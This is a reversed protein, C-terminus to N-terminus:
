SYQNLTVIIWNLANVPKYFGAVDLTSPDGQDQTVLIGKFDSILQLNKLSQFYGKLVNNIQPILSPLNKQGIFQDLNNRIGQQVFHKVEVIRPDRTFSNSLDTTLYMRIKISTSLDQLVTCGANAVLAATVDDLRRYLRDFGVIKKNTLPTAIDYVPDVDLGAAAVAIFSGDVLYQVDNGFADPITLLAAEPYVATIKESGLAQCQQIASEPTTGFAFGVISTRENRFRISSQTANSTALYAQVQSNTTMVQMLSPRTGDPMPENFIDIADLYSQVPADAGGTARQVQQLVVSTAGNLFAFNAGLVIKNTIDLPGFDTYVDRMNTYSKATYDTKAQDFTVYYSDGVNPENGDQKFTQLTVTDGTNDAAGGSTTDITLNVGPIAKVITSVAYIWTQTNTPDTPVGVHYIVTKGTTPTFGGSVAQFAVSFGTVSDTYTQGQYGKNTPGTGTKGSGTVTFGGVGDFTVTVTEVSSTFPSTYVNVAGSGAYVPAITGGFLTVALATGSFNSTLTYRGVTAVGPLQDTITWTDDIINNEYYTVYVNDHSGVVGVAPAVELIISTGQIQDVIVPGATYAAIWTTGVYAAIKAPDETQTGTGTGDVPLSPLTYTKNGTGNLPLGDTGYITNGNVDQDVVVPTAVAGFIQTDTLSAVVNNILPTSGATYIGTNLALSTGWHVENPAALIVDQGISYDSTDAGLGVKVIDNVQAAPLIDFTDQWINTFYSVTVTADLAPATGLTFIGEAGDLATIATIVSNVKVQIVPVTKTYENGPVSPTPNYLIVVNNGIDANTASQGGNNGNCIRISRVKFNVTTGDAQFSLDENEIFTDRRKFYYNVEVDDTAQPIDVLTIEGLLGNIANVAVQDGNVTVIVQNPLTAVTGTGAGTVLPFNQVRFQNSVGQVGGIWGASTPDSPDAEGTVEEGLIVNDATSSSGRIMEFNSIRKQEYGVGIIAPYRANGAASSGAVQTLTQTFVGPFVFSALPGIPM